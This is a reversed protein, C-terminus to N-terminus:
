GFGNVVVGLRHGFCGLYFIRVLYVRVRALGFWDKGPRFVFREVEMKEVWLGVFGAM